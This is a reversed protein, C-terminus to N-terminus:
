NQFLFINELKDIKNDVKNELSEFKEAMFKILLDEDVM